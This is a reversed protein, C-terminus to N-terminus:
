GTSAKFKAGRVCLSVLHSAYPIYEDRASESGINPWMSVFMSKPLSARLFPLQVVGSQDAPHAMLHEQECAFVCEALVEGVEHPIKLTTKRFFLQADVYEQMLHLTQTCAQLGAQLKSFESDINSCQVKSAVSLTCMSRVYSDVYNPHAQSLQDIFYRLLNTKNDASKCAALKDLGELAFGVANAYRQAGTNMFNGHLLTVALLLQLPESSMIEATADTVVSVLLGVDTMCPDFIRMFECADLRHGVHPVSIFSQMFQEVQSLAADPGEFARLLQEEETTPRLEKLLKLDDLPAKLLASFDRMLASGGGVPLKIKKLCIMLNQSRKPDIINAPKIEGAAAAATSSKATTTVAPTNKFLTEFSKVQIPPPQVSAGIQRWISGEVKRGDV